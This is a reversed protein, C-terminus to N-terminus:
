LNGMLIRERHLSFNKEKSIGSWVFLSIFVCWLFCVVFSFPACWLLDNWVITKYFNCNFPVNHSKSTLRFGWISIKSFALRVSLFIYYVGGGVSLVGLILLIMNIISKPYLQRSSLNQGRIRGFHISTFSIRPRCIRSSKRRCLWAISLSFRYSICLPLWTCCMRLQHWRQM